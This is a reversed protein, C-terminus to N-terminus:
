LLCLLYLLACWLCAFNKYYNSAVWQRSYTDIKMSQDLGYLKQVHWDQNGAEIRNYSNFFRDQAKELVQRLSQSFPLSQPVTNDM